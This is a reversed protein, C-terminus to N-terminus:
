TAPKSTATCSDRETSQREADDWDVISGEAVASAVHLIRGEEAV